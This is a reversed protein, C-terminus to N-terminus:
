APSRPATDTRYILLRGPRPVARLRAGPAPAEAARALLLGAPTDLEVLFSGARPACARVTGPWGVGDSSLLLDEPRLRAALPAGEPLPAELPMRLGGVLEAAEGRAAGSIRNEAGLLVAAEESVPRRWVEGAPGDQALRGGCLLLLRDAVALADDHDHTVYLAAAGARRLAESVVRRAEVQRPADLGSLPEDLLVLRPQHILARALAVRQREGGSLEAPLRRALAGVGLSELMGGVRRAIEAEPVGRARLPFAANEFADLHPWLSHGQPALGLGREHTPVVAEGARTVLRGDLRIEGADPLELGAVLRLLTSKGAGSVGLVAAVRGEELSFDVGSLIARPGRRLSLASVSLVVSM